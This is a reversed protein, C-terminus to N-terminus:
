VVSHGVTSNTITGISKELRTATAKATCLRKFPKPPESISWVQRGSVIGCYFYNNDDVKRFLYYRHSSHDLTIRIM